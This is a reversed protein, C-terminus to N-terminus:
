SDALPFGWALLRLLVVHRNREGLAVDNGGDFQGVRELHGVALALTSLVADTQLGPLGSRSAVAGLNADDDTVNVGSLPVTRGVELLIESQVQGVDHSALVGVALLLGVPQGKPAHGARVVNM